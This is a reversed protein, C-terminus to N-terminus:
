KTGTRHVADLVKYNTGDTRLALAHTQSMMGPEGCTNRLGVAACITLAFRRDVISKVQGRETRENRVGSVSFSETM